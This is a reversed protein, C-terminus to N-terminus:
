LKAKLKEHRMRKLIDKLKDTKNYIKQGVFKTYFFTQSTSTWANLHGGIGELERTIDKHSRTHTGKFMMHEIAHSLGVLSDPENRGGCRFFARFAVAGTDKRTQTVIRLQNALVSQHFITKM